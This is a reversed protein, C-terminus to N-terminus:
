CSTWLWWELFPIISGVPVFVKAFSGKCIWLIISSSLASARANNNLSDVPKERIDTVALRNHKQHKAAPCCTFPHKKRAYIMLFIIYKNGRAYDLSRCFNFTQTWSPPFCWQRWTQEIRMAMNQKRACCGM